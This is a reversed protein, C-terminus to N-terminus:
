LAEELEFNFLAKGPNTHFNRTDPDYKIGPGSGRETEIVCDIDPADDLEGEKVNYKEDSNSKYLGM